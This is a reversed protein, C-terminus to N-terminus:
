GGGRRGQGKKRKCCRQKTKIVQVADGRKAVVQTKHAADSGWKRQGRATILVGSCM